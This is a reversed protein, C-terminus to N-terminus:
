QMNQTTKDFGSQALPVKFAASNGFGCKCASLLILNLDHHTEQDELLKLKDHIPLRELVFEKFTVKFAFGM